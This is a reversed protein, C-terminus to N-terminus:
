GLSLGLRAGTLSVATPMAGSILVLAKGVILPLSKIRIFARPPAVRGSTESWLIPFSRSRKTVHIVDYRTSLPPFIVLTWFAKPFSFFLPLSPPPPTSEPTQLVALPATPSEKFVHWASRSRTLSSSKYSWEPIFLRWKDPEELEPDIKCGTGFEQVTRSHVGGGERFDWVNKQIM